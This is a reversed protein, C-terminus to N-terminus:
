AIVCGACARALQARMRNSLLTLAPTRIIPARYDTHLSHPHTGAQSMPTTVYTALESTTSWAPTREAQTQMKCTHM